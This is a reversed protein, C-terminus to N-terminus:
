HHFRVVWLPFATARRNPQLAHQAHQEHLVPEVQGVLRALFRKVVARAQAAEHADVQAALANGIGRRQQFDAAKQLRVPQALRQEGLHAFHQLGV